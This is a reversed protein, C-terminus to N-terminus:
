LNDYTCHVQRSDCQTLSSMRLAAIHLGRVAINLVRGSGQLVQSLEMPQDASLSFPFPECVVCLSFLQCTLRQQICYTSPYSDKNVKVPDSFVMDIAESIECQM